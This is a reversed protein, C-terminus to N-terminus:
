PQVAKRQLVWAWVAGGAVKAAFQLAVIGPMLSGFALTPFIISDVLAGATNSANMRLLLPARARLVHYVAADALGAALFAVFSAMAIRGAAPNLVYALAAAVCVMSASFWFGSRDHLLDRLSLDLGILGFAIFPSAWPGIAWVLLNAAVLAAIYIAAIV